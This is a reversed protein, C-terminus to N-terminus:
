CSYLVCQQGSRYRLEVRAFIACSWSASLGELLGSFMAFMTSFMTVSLGISCCSLCCSVMFPRQVNLMTSLMHLKLVCEGADQQQLARAQQPAQVEQEKGAQQADHEEMQPQQFEAARAEVVSVLTHMSRSTATGLDGREPTYGKGLEDMPWPCVESFASRSVAVLELLWM